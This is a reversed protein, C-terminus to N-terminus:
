AAKKTEVKNPLYFPAYEEGTAWLRHLLVALKRAVAVVARKKANKGGREAIRLGFRRLNSDEGFRGLIYQGCQVLLRRLYKDGSKTIRLQKDISGSQDRKPTLGLYPGVDRSRHFRDPNGITVAYAFATVPGVGQVQGLLETVPYRERSTSKITKDYEAIKRTLEELQKIIPSLAPKLLQPIHKLAKKHFCSTGCPPIRSGISKVAGRVHNILMARTKTLMDRAKLLARDAQSQEDRHRIPYLLRPDFRAIRALMEADRIDDKQDSAWIMRLKRPNGVLVKNSKGSLVRSVWPSHTGAEIAVVAEPYDGFFEQLAETSNSVQCTRSTNGENDLVHVQHKKDGLDMGITVNHM